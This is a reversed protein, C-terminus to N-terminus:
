LGTRITSRVIRPPALLFSGGTPPEKKNAQTAPSSGSVARLATIRDQAATAPLEASAPAPGHNLTWLPHHQARDATSRVFFFWWYTTRKQESTYRSKFWERRPAGHYPGASRQGPTGSFGACSWPELDLLPLKM